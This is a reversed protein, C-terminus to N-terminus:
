HFSIFYQIVGAYGGLIAGAIILKWEEQKFIPRLFSIFDKSPLNAMKNEITKQIDLQKHAYEYTNTIAIPVEQIFRYSAINKIVEIKNKDFIINILKDLGGLSKDILDNINKEIIKEIKGNNSIKFIGDFLQEITLMKESIIKSYNKAVHKQRRLFLGHFKIGLIRTENVPTFILQLAIYNTLLGVIVGGVTFVWWYPFYMIVVLQLIGFVFGLFLGSREIFKFEKKGVDLFIETILKKDNLLTEAAIKKFDILENINENIDIITNEITEPFYKKVKDYVIKRKSMSLNKWLHPAQAFMVEDVIQKSILTLSPEIKEAIVQPDLRAFIIKIKILKDVMLDVANNTMKLANAPIIGQWGFPRLGFYNTPFFLMKIAIFNTIWGVFASVFPIVIYSIYEL